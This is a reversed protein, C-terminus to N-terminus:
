VKNLFGITSEMIRKRFKSEGAQQNKDKLDDLNAQCFKCGLKNLHFDVYDHWPKELTGLLYAGITSRKPCSLRLSEWIETLIYEFEESVAESENDNQQVQQALQKIYRHKIVGINKDDIGMIRGVDKNPIHGYFLLEIIQLDRLNMSQKLKDVLDVIADQLVDRSLDNQEDRSMYWSATQEKSPLIGFADGSGDSGKGKYVDQVFCIGRSGRSRYTDIIKRRLITFLYTELSADGRFNALSKIFSIFTDQVVDEADARQSLGTQAFAVLRGNYKDVLQSWADPDGSRIQEVLSKEAKSIKSM